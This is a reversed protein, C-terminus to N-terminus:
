NIWKSAVMSPLSEFCAQFKKNKYLRRTQRCSYDRMKTNVETESDMDLVPVHIAAIHVYKGLAFESSTKQRFCFHPAYNYAATM